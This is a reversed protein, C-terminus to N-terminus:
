GVEADQWAECQIQSAHILEIACTAYDVVPAIDGAVAQAAAYVLAARVRKGGSELSYRAAEILGCLPDPLPDTPAFGKDLLRRIAEQNRSISGDLAAQFQGSM